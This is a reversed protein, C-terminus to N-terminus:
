TPGFRPAWREESATWSSMTILHSEVSDPMSGATAKRPSDFKPIRPDPEGASRGSLRRCHEHALLASPHDIVALRM